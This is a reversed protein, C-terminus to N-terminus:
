RCTVNKTPILKNGLYAGGLTGAITGVTKGDGDGVQSGLVGGGVGGAITGVVNGDDCNQVPEPAPQRPAPASENWAITEKKTTTKTAAVKEPESEFGGNAIYTSAGATVAALLLAGVAIVIINRTRTKM